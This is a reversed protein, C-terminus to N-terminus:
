WIADTSPFDVLFPKHDQSELFTRLGQASISTTLRNDLPHFNLPEKALLERDIAVNVIGTNDNIVAFPSVSGPRIGLYAMLRRESCFTLRKTGLERALWFLDVVRHSLCSVLWHRERKDRLFLNKSHAGPVAGRLELAEEVTHIAPHEVTKHAIDLEDLAAFLDSATRPVSGDVLQAPPDLEHSPDLDTNGEDGAPAETREAEANAEAEGPANAVAEAEANAEGERAAQAETESPTDDSNLSTM